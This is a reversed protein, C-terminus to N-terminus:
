AFWLSGNTPGGGHAQADLIGALVDDLSSIWGEGVGIAGRDKWTSSSVSETDKGGEAPVTANTNNNSGASLYRYVDSSTFGMSSWTASMDGSSQLLKVAKGAFVIKTAMRPTIHSEPLQELSLTYSMTWDLNTAESHAASDFQHSYLLGSNRHGSQAARELRALVREEISPTAMATYSGNGVGGHLRSSTSQIFFENGPDDLDGYIMWGFIQKM